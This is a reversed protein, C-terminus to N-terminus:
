GVLWVRLGSRFDRKRISQVSKVPTSTPLAADGDVVDLGAGDVRVEIGGRAVPCGRLYGDCREFAVASDVLNGCQYREDGAGLRGVDGAGIEGDVTAGVGSGSGCLRDPDSRTGWEHLRMAHTPM